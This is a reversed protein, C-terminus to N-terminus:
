SVSKSYADLLVKRFRRLELNVQQDDLYITKTFQWGKNNISDPDRLIPDDKEYKRYLSSETPLIKYGIYDLGLKRAPEGYYTEAAWDTGLPIIQVFVSGPRMFLFHTMAAGHVGVLVDSSNLEKYLKALETSRRPRLVQVQFGIRKAMKVLTEENKIGRSGKRSLLALRPRQMRRSVAKRDKAPEASFRTEEEAVLRNIRPRYAKDLLNRFDMITKNHQMLSPNVTLEDHIRLGVIAEKFCHTRKDRDFDVLPYASLQSIVDGYKLEWWKHYESIVFVVRKAFRQSTIYLPIIGDNFEHYVNGTYGGTSFVVAPVDHHVDCTHEDGLKKADRRELKLERITDMIATEWKRTYPKIKGYSVHNSFGDSRDQSNYLLISSSPSRTRIDGKMFCIDTRYGTRDCWIGERSAVTSRKILDTNGHVDLRESVKVPFDLLSPSPPSFFCLLHPAFLFCCSLLSLLLLSILKPKSRKM